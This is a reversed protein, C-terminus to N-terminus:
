DSIRMESNIILPNSAIPREARPLSPWNVHFPTGHLVLHKTMDSIFRRDVMLAIIPEPASSLRSEAALASGLGAAGTPGFSAM